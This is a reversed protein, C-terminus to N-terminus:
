ARITPIPVMTGKAIRSKSSKEKRDTMFCGIGPWEWPNANDVRGAVLAQDILTNQDVEELGDMRKIDTSDSIHEIAVLFAPGHGLIDDLRAAPM